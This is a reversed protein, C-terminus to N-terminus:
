TVSMTTRSRILTYLIPLSSTMARRPSSAVNAPPFTVQIRGDAVADEFEDTGWGARWDFTLWEEMTWRDAKLHFPFVGPHAISYNPGYFIHNSKRRHNNVTKDAIKAIPGFDYGQPLGPVRGMHCDQCQVGKKCAPSARYQEWVVELKIGPHVAVQHCSACFESRTLQDFYIGALHMDQGPGPDHPSTKVKFQDKRHITEAVGDGGVGGFVPAFIPGPEIRREGNSKAYMYQVRHCAICTVGERAVEPLNWLPEDRPICMATAVPAHCRMCFYGVTGQSLDNLKQEFKHFMPSVNAYAHASISWQQYIEEHCKACERASPYANKAFLELHPDVAGSDGAAAPLASVTPSPRHQPPPLTEPQVPPPTFIPAPKATPPPVEVKPPSTERPPAPPTWPQSPRSPEPVTSQPEMKPVTEVAPEVVAQTKAEEEVLVEVPPQEVRSPEEPAVVPLELEPTERPPPSERPPESPTAGPPEVTAAPEQQPQPAAGGIFWENPDVLWDDAAAVRYTPEPREAVRVPHPYRVTPVPRGDAITPHTAPWAPSTPRHAVHDALQRVPPLLADVREPSNVVEELPAVAACPCHAYLRALEADYYNEAASAPPEARALQRESAPRVAWVVACAVAALASLLM